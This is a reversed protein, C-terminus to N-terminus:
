LGVCSSEEGREQGRESESEGTMDGRLMHAENEEKESFRYSASFPGVEAM